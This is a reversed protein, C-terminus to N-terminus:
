CCLSGALGGGGGATDLLGMAVTGASYSKTLNTAILLRGIEEDAPMRELAKDALDDHVKFAVGTELSRRNKCHLLSRFGLKNPQKFVCVQTGDMGLTHCDHGLVDLKGLADTSLPKLLPHSSFPNYTSHPTPHLSSPARCPRFKHKNQNNPSPRFDQRHLFPHCPCFTTHSTAPASHTHINTKSKHPLCARAM